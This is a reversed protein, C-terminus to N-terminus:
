YKYFFRYGALGVALASFMTAIFVSYDPSVIKFFQLGSFILFSCVLWVLFTLLVKVFWVSYNQTIVKLEKSERM